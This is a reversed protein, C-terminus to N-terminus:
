ARHYPHGALITHARYLQEAVILPVLRHPLTLPSLSWHTFSKIMELDFGDAGGVLFNLSSVGSNQWRALKKALEMSNWLDGREDLTITIGAGPLHDLLKQTTLTKLQAASLKGAKIPNLKIWKSPVFGNLQKLYEQVLADLHAEDRGITILNLKM